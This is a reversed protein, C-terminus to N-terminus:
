KTIDAIAKIVKDYEPEPFEHGVGQMPLLISGPMCARLAEGHEFRVFPDETGHIILTPVQISGLRDHWRETAAVVLGHNNISAYSKARDFEKAFLTRFYKEDYPHATGVVDGFFATRKNIVEERNSWDCEFANTALSKLVKESPGPLSIEKGGIADSISVLDPTAMIMTLSLVRNPHGLAALQAISGGMSLGVIHAKDIRYHDLVVMADDAMDNLTYKAEGPPYCTSRGTDRPDFRIVFRGTEALQTCFKEDWGLMSLSAGNLLLIAPDKPEGFSDACIELGNNAQIIEEPHHAKAM